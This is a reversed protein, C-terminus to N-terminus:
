KEFEQFTRFLINKITWLIFHIKKQNTKMLLIQFSMLILENILNLQIKRFKTHHLLTRFNVCKLNLSKLTSSLSSKLNNKLSNLDNELIEIM